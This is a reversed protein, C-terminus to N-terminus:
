DMKRSNELQRSEQCNRNACERIQREDNRYLLPIENTRQRYVIKRKPDLM